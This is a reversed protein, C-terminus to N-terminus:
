RDTFVKVADVDLSGVGTGSAKYVSAYPQLIANSGTAAFSSAAVQAGDIFFLVNTPDSADIRFRHQADAILTVGTAISKTNVGDKTRALVAGNAAWAFEAYYSANDPGDIWASQLGLIAQVAAASPLVHLAAVAEFVAKKTMDFNLQDGFYLTAEQKESTADLACRVKHTNAVGGVTPTGSSQVLKKVWPMGAVASGAAPISVEGVGLFDERFKVASLRDLLEFTTTDYYEAVGANVVSKFNQM